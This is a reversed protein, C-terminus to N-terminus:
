HLGYVEVTAEGKFNFKTRYTLEITEIYRERGKLDIPPTEQGGSLQRPVPVDESQGNGYTIRMQRLEIAHGQARVKLQRFAGLARGVQFVDRDPKFREARQAGLLVWQGRGAGKEGIWSPAHEGYVEVVAQGRFGPRSQYVLEISGIRGDKIDIPRTVAGSQIEANVTIRESTPGGRGEYNIVIERLLIDNRSVKLAIKQFRGLDRGIRIVDRDVGFGVTQSGFLVWGRPVQGSTYRTPPPGPPGALGPGRGPRNDALGFLEVIARGAFGPRARYVFDVRQIVRAEGSLDLARTESGARIPARVVLDETQGNGYTVKLDILFIDAGRVALKLARFRGDQRGVQISDRDVGFGVSREGLKVWAPPPPGQRRQAQAPGAILAAMTILALLGSLRQTISMTTISM